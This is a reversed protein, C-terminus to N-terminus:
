DRRTKEGSALDVLLGAINRAAQPHALNLMSQRMQARREGDHVLELVVPLLRGPLESDQVVVAAGRRQLYAANVQQYRWAYPYPVLVAPLGFAPFEGLSSAGARSLVLDAASLAAGMQEHLYPYARYRTALRADLAQRANEVEPWDLQGSIHVVQMEALLQPLVDLLARNISRAGQSGGFVLLVPSSASLELAQRAKEADWRRLGPRTPYGTVHAKRRVAPSLYAYTDAVTVAIRHAFRALTKLALGPEIDPVYLLGPVRRGALAMPVAVFGGTFLLADPRFHRVVRRAEFYGRGLQLLNGPLSRLGVGHVGAAPIAEFAIGARKVLDAEMGGRGGVWLTTLGDQPLLSEDPDSLAQHVALAPYVGGGTGGACILLRV